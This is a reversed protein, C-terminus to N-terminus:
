RSKKFSKSPYQLPIVRAIIHEKPDPTIDDFKSTPIEIGNERLIREVEETDMFYLKSHGEESQAVLQKSM